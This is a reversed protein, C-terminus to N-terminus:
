RGWFGSWFTPKPDADRLLRWLLREATESPLRMSRGTVLSGSARGYASDLHVLADEVYWEGEYVKGRYTTRVQHREPM